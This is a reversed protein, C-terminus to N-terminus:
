PCAPGPMHKRLLERFRDPFPLQDLGVGTKKVKVGHQTLSGGWERWCISKNGPGVNLKCIEPEPGSGVM